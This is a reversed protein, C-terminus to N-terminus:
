VGVGEQERQKGECEDDLGRVMNDVIREEDGEAMRMVAHMM